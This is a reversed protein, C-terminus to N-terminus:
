GAGEASTVRAASGRPRVWWHIIGVCDAQEWATGGTTSLCRGNLTSPAARVRLFGDGLAVGGATLLLVNSHLGPSGLDPHDPSRRGRWIRAVAARRVGGIPSREFLVNGCPLTRTRLRRLGRSSSMEEPWSRATGAEAIPSLFRFYGASRGEEKVPSDFRGVRDYILIERCHLGSSSFRHRQPVASDADEKPNGNLVGAWQSPPPPFPVLNCM